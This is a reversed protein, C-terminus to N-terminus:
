LAYVYNLTATKFQGGRKTEITDSYSLKLLHRKALPFAFSVGVRSNRQLNPDEVGNVRSQGGYYHTGDLSLWTGRKIRYILSADLATLPDQQRVQNNFDDNDEFFWRGASLELVWHHTLPQIYGLRLRSAWRNAGVNILRDSDYDGTPAVVKVGVALIPQPDARFAQFTELDMSPAGILNISATASADGIGQLDRRAADGEFTGTTTGTAYPLALQLTTTRGLVDFTRQYGMFSVNARSRVGEVPLSPDTIVDGTQYTNGLIILQTGKPAPWYARPTLEQANAVGISSAAALLLPLCIKRLM